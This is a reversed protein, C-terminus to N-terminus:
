RSAQLYRSLVAFLAVLFHGAVALALWFAMQLPTLGATSPGPM